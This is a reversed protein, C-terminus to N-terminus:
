VTNEKFYGVSKIREDESLPNGTEPNVSYCAGDIMRTVMEGRAIDSGKLHPADLIGMRLATGLTNPDSLPDKVSREAIRRIAQLLVGAERILEKKRQQIKPDMSMDPMGEVCNQIVYRAIKCSEIVDDATAAHDSEIFSVVHIIEPKLAMQMMISTALRGKAADLDAPYRLLGTRTQTYVTFSTDVLGEIIERKALQKALDMQYSEGMPLDFMCTCIYHKVGMKKANYASLYMDAVATVDSSERLEFHHPENLEVPIGRRGHWRMLKQHERIAEELDLPGRGDLKSFWFLPIAAFCNNITEVLLDAMRFLDNTGQYCRMLPFNGCRSAAYIRKLDDPTRVPVGGAGRRGPDQREPHFFNEQADQDPALSIVDLVKEKAVKEIAAITEELSSLGLHHRIVPFPDKWSIRDILNNPYTLQTSARPTIEGRLYSVIDEVPETGNFVRDFIKIKEAIKAVEPTGGFVYKKNQNLLGAEELAMRLQSLHFEGSEPMLRYSIGILDADTEVAAGVLGEVSVAPGLIVTKYGEKEALRLFNIVGAVHVDEGIPGAVLVKKGKEGDMEKERLIM